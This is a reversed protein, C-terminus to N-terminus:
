SRVKEFIGMLLERKLYFDEFENGKTKTVDETKIRNDAPPRKALARADSSNDVATSAGGNAAPFPAAVNPLM